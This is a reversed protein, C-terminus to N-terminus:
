FNKYKQRKCSDKKISLARLIIKSDRKRAIVKKKDRKTKNAM